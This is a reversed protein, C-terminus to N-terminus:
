GKGQEIKLPLNLTALWEVVPVSALYYTAEEIHEISSCRSALEQRTLLWVHSQVRGKRLHKSMWDLATTEAVTRHLDLRASQCRAVEAM